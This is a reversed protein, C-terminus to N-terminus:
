VESEMIKNRRDEIDEILERRRETKIIKGDHTYFVRHIKLEV